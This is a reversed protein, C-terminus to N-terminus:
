STRTDITPKTKNTEVPKSEITLAKGAKEHHHKLHTEVRKHHCVIEPSSDSWSANVVFVAIAVMTVSKLNM